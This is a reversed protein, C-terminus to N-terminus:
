GNLQALIKQIDDEEDTDGDLSKAAEAVNKSEAGKWPASDEEEAPQPAKAPQASQAPKTNKSETVGICHFHEDLTKKLEDYSKVSYVKELDSTGNYVSEIKETTLGDIAKPMTFKSTSYSPYEGQKDVKIKFDCGKATLDFIRSGLGDSDDGEIAEMIIKHLQRGFKLLKVTGNNDPNKPDNIVYVNVMWNEKRLIKSAKDKEEQSGTKTAKYRYENIPDRDGWTQPSVVQIYQGTSFSTWGFTFYHFFTKSPDKINPLLRVTYTNGVETKLFKGSNSTENKALAQKISDFMSSTISTSM